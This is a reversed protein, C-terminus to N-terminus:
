SGKNSCWSKAYWNGNKILESHSGIEEVKGDNIVIIQDAISVRMLQHSIIIITARTSKKILGLNNFLDEESKYDM